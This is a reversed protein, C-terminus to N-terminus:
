FFDLLRKFKANTHILGTLVASPPKCPLWSVIVGYADLRHGNTPVTVVGEQDDDDDDDDDDNLKLCFPVIFFLAAYSPLMPWDSLCLFAACLM